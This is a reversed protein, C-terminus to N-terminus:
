ARPRLGGILPLALLSALGMFAIAPGYGLAEVLLGLVFTSWVCCLNIGATFVCFQTAALRPDTLEM